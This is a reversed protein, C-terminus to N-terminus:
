SKNKSKYYKERAQAVGESGHRRRTTMWPLERNMQPFEHLAMMGGEDGNEYWRREVLIRWDGILWGIGLNGLKGLIGLKGAKGLKGRNGHKGLKGRIGAKGRNGCFNM